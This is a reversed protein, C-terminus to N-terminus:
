FNIYESVVTFSLNVTHPYTGYKPQIRVWDFTATHEMLLTYM